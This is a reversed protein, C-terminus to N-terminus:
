STAWNERGQPEEPFHDRYYLPKGNDPFVMVSAFDGPLDSILVFGIVLLPAVRRSANGSGIMVISINKMFSSSPEDAVQLEPNAPRREYYKRQEGWSKEIERKV